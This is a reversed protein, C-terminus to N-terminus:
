GASRCIRLRSVRLLFVIECSLTWSLSLFAFTVKLDGSWAQTFTVYRGSRARRRIVQLYGIMSPLSLFLWIPVIRAIRRVYFHLITSVRPTQMEEYSSAAIVFGSLVFFFTVGMYGNDFFSQMVVPMPFIKAAHHMLVLLAAFYRACTLNDIRENKVATPEVDDQM